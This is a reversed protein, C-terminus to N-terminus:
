GAFRIAFVTFPRAVVVDADDFLDPTADSARVAEVTAIRRTVAAHQRYAPDRYFVDGGTVGAGAGRMAVFACPYAGLSCLRNGTRAFGIAYEGAGELRLPVVLRGGDCLASWWAAAVDDARASVVIRDYAAEDLGAFGDANEVRVTAYGLDSLVARARAAMAPDLELTTVAGDAGSMLALLAANYGSGTGIELVRDRDQVDLAELMQAIMGPQSISSVVTDGHTRLAIARDAYAEELAVDPVFRHRPVSRMAAGVRPSRLVGTRELRAILTERLQEAHEV